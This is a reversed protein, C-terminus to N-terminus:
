ASPALEESAIRKVVGADVDGRHKKMVAGIVRGAQKPDNIGLEAIAARVAERVADEGMQEPLFQACWDAEWQAEVAQEAGKDGAAEYQVKAKIMMKRYAAIVKLFLADDVEGEFDSKKSAETVRSKIMRIVDSSRKDKDRLAQKLRQHFDDAISM